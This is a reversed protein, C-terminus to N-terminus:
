NPATALDHFCLKRVFQGSAAYGYIRLNGEALVTGAFGIKVMNQLTLADLKSPNTLEFWEIDAFGGEQFHYFWEGSWESIFGTGLHKSRFM